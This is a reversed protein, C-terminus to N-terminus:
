VLIQQAPLRLEYRYRATRADRHSEFLYPEALDGLVSQLEEKLKNRNQDLTKSKLGAERLDNIARRHGQHHEMTAALQKGQERDPRNQPPNTYAPLQQVKREAYWHYYFLPTKPLKVPLGHVVVRGNKLDFRLQAEARAVELAQELALGQGLATMLWAQQGEQLECVDPDQAVSFAQHFDLDLQEALRRAFAAQNPQELARTALSQAEDRSLGGDMFLQQWRLADSSHVVPLQYYILVAILAILVAMLVVNRWHYQTELSYNLGILKDGHHWRVKASATQSLYMLEIRTISLHKVLPVFVSHVPVAKLVQQLREASERFIVQEDAANVLASELAEPLQAQLLAQASRQMHWEGLLMLSLMAAIFGVM